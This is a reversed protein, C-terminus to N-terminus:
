IRSNSKVTTHEECTKKKMEVNTCPMNVEDSPQLHMNASAQTKVKRMLKKNCMAGNYNLM